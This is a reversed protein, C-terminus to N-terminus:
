EKGKSKPLDAEAIDKEVRLDGYLVQYTDSDQPKYWFIATETDGLGIGGGGYHWKSKPLELMIFASGRAIQTSYEVLANKWESSNQGHEIEVEKLLKHMVAHVGKAGQIQEPFVGGGNEAGFRLMDALDEMSPPSLNMAMKRVTYGQPPEFSFISPDLEADYQFNTMVVKVKSEGVHTTEVRIPLATEPDAWVDTSGFKDDLRFGLARVGDIEKVGLSRTGQDPDAQAKRFRERLLEFSGNVPRDKPANEMNYVVAMKQKPILTLWKQARLDCINISVEGMMKTEIRELSPALFMVKSETKVEGTEATMDCTTSQISAFAKAIEEFALARGSPSLWALLGCFAVFLTAVVVFKTMPKMSDIRAFLSLPQVLDATEERKLDAVVQAVLADPPGIPIPTHRLAETARKLLDNQNPNEHINM